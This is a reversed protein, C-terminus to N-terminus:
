DAAGSTSIFGQLQNLFNLSANTSTNKKMVLTEGDDDDDFTPLEMKRGVGTISKLGAPKMMPYDSPPAGIGGQQMILDQLRQLERKLDDDGHGGAGSALREGVWPFLELLVDLRGARLDVILRIGNRVTVAFSRDNKLLEIQDALAAEDPKHMDLWFPFRLRYRTTKM